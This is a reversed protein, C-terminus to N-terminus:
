ALKDGAPALRNLGEVGNIDVLHEPRALRFAMIPVLSQGGALVRGDNPAVEALTAVAEDVTKPAHYRFAAPKMSGGGAGDYRSTSWRTRAFRPGIVPEARPGPIWLGPQRASARSAWFRSTRSYPNRARRKAAGRFSLSSIRDTGYKP